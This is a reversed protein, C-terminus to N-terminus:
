TGWVAYIQVAFGFILLSSAWMGDVTRRTTAVLVSPIVDVEGAYRAFAEETDIAIGTSGRVVSRVLILAGFFDFMLGYVQPSYAPAFIFRDFLFGVVIMMVGSLYWYFRQHFACLFEREIYNQTKVDLDKLVLELDRELWDFIRLSGRGFLRPIKVRIPPQENFLEYRDIGGQLYRHGLNTLKYSGNVQEVFENEILIKLRDEIRNRNELHNM